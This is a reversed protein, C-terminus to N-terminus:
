WTPRSSCVGATPRPRRRDVLRADRLRCGCPASRLVRRATPWWRSPRRERGQDGAGRAPAPTARRAPGGLTSGPQRRPRRRRTAAPGFRGVRRHNAASRDTRRRRCCAMGLLAGREVLETAPRSRVTEEVLTWPMARAPTARTRSTTSGRRYRRSTTPVPSRSRSGDTPPACCAAPGAAASRARGAPARALRARDTLLGGGAPASSARDGRRGADDLRATQAAVYRWMAASAPRDEM